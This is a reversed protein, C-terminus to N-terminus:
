DIHIHVLEPSNSSVRQEIDAAFHRGLYSWPWVDETPMNNGGRKPANSPWSVIKSGIGVAFEYASLTRDVPDRLHSLVAINDPLMSVVSFDDHSSLLYCNPASTNIRLHDYAKPCRKSPHTGLKLFCSQFTRGATRPMHLFFVMNSGTYPAAEKHHTALYSDVLAACQLSNVTPASSALSLSGLALLLLMM